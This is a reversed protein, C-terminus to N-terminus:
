ALGELEKLLDDADRVEAVAAKRKRAAVETASRRAGRLLEVAEKLDGEELNGAAAKARLTVLRANVEPSYM